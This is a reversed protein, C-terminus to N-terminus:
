IGLYFQGKKDEKEMKPMIKSVLDIAIEDTIDEPSIGKGTATYILIESLRESDDKWYRNGGSRNFDPELLSDFKLDLISVAKRGEVYFDENEGAYRADGFVYENERTVPIAIRTAPKGSPSAKYSVFNNLKKRLNYAQYFAPRSIKETLNDLIWNFHSYDVLAIKRYDSGSHKKSPLTIINM